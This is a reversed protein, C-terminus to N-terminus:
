AQTRRIAPKISFYAHYALEMQIRCDDADRQRVIFSDHVPLLPVEAWMAWQMVQVAILGDKHMLEHGIGRWFKGAEVLPRHTELLSDIIRDALVRSGLEQGLKWRTGSESRSNLMRGFVTKALNRWPDDGGTTEAYDAPRDPVSYCATPPLMGLGHYLISPHNEKFDLEAVPSGNLSIALRDGKSLNQWWGYFRGGRDLDASNFSQFLENTGPQAAATIVFRRMWDRLAKVKRCAADLQLPDAPECPSGDEDKVVVLPAEPDPQALASAEAPSIGGLTRFVEWFAANPRMASQYGLGRPTYGLVHDVLGASRLLDVLRSVRNTTFSKPILGYPKRDSYWKKKRSYTLWQGAGTALEAVLRGLCNLESQPDLKSQFNGRKKHQDEIPLFHGTREEGEEGGEELPQQLYQYLDPLFRALSASPRTFPHLPRSNDNLGLSQAQAFTCGKIDIPESQKGGLGVLSCSTEQEQVLM